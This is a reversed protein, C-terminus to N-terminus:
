FPDMTFSFYIIATLWAEACLLGVITGTIKKVANMRMTIATKM